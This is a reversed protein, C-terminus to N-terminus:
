QTHCSLCLRSGRNSMVLLSPEPSYPTHCTGCGINGDFLRIHPELHRALKFDGDKTRETALMPVGIPHDTATDMAGLRLQHSGAEMGAAGDHCELCQRSDSDLNGPTGHRGQSGKSVPLHARKLATAHVSRTLPSEAKHCQMCHSAASDGPRVGVASKAAGHDSDPAHCTMCTILGNELPLSAPVAMSPRINVPHSMGRDFQHCSACDSSMGGVSPHAVPASRAVHAAPTIALAAHTTIWALGLVATIVRRRLRVFAAVRSTRSRAQHM